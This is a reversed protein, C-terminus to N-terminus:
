HRDASRALAAQWPVIVAPIAFEIATLVELSPHPRGLAARSLLRSCAALLFGAGGARVITAEAEPRRAAKLMLAGFVVYWSAYFRLESDVNASVPGGQVVSAGGRLTSTLGAGTAVAGITALLLQLRRRHM